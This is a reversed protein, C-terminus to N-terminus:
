NSEDMQGKDEDTRGPINGREDRDCMWKKGEGPEECKGEIGKRRGEGREEDHRGGVHDTGRGDGEESGRDIESPKESGLERGGEGIAVERGRETGEDVGAQAQIMIGIRHHQKSRGRGGVEAGNVGGEKGMERM